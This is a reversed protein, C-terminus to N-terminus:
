SQSDAQKHILKPQQHVAEQLSKWFDFDADEQPPFNVSWKELHGEESVWEIDDQLCIHIEHDYPDYYIIKDDRKDLFVVYHGDRSPPHIINAIAIGGRYSDEGHSVAGLHAAAAAALQSNRTGSEPNPILLQRFFDYDTEKGLILSVTALCAPGCSYDDRQYIFVNEDMRDFIRWFAYGTM